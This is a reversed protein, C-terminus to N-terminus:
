YEWWKRQDKEVLRDANDPGRTGAKYYQLLSKKQHESIETISDIFKWTYKLEKWNTFTLQNGKMLNSIIREYAQPSQLAMVCSKCFDMQVPEIEDLKNPPKINFQLQVGEEPQIRLLLVNPTVEDAFIQKFQKEKKFEVCIYLSKKELRKGTRLYFPVGKWRKNDIHVKLAAFSETTSHKHIGKEEIYAKFEKEPNALYQGLVVNEKVSKVNKYKRLAKFIKVKEKTVCASDLCKPMEMTLLALIQLLHNQVMDKLAGSQDYYRGRNMIGFDESATIQINDICNGDWIHSFIMNSFRIYLINELMDKGLYHDIRFINKEDLVRTLDNNLQKASLYNHGFPKEVVVRQFGIKNDLMHYTDLNNVIVKFFNPSTALYFIRNGATCQERDIAELFEKLKEYERDKDFSLSFYSILSKFEEWREDVDYISHDVLVKEIEHLFVESTRESRAVAVIHFYPPLNEECFLNYLAPYLKLKALNGSGGFIVFINNNM